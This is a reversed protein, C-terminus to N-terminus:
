VERMGRQGIKRLKRQPSMVGFKILHYSFQKIKAITNDSLWHKRKSMDETQTLYYHKQLLQINRKINKRM